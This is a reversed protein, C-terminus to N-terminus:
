SCSLMDLDSAVINLILVHLQVIKSSVVTIIKNFGVARHVQPWKINATPSRGEVEVSAPM